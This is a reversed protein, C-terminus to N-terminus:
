QSDSWEIFSSSSSSSSYKVPKHGGGGGSGFWKWIPPIVGFVTLLIFIVLLIIIILVIFFVWYKKDRWWFTKRQKKAASYFEKSKMTLTGTKDVLNQLAEGRKAIDDINQVMIDKVELAEEHIQRIKISTPDGSYYAVRNKLTPIFDYFVPYNGGVSNDKLFNVFLTDIENLFAFVTHPSYAKKSLAIYVLKDNYIDASSVKCHFSYEEYNYTKLTGREMNCLQQPLRKASTVYGPNLSKTGNNLKILINPGLSIICYEIGDACFTPEMPPNITGSQISM